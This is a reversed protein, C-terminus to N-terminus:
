TLGQCIGDDVSILLIRALSDIDTTAALSISDRKDDPVLSLPKVDICDWVRSGGAM